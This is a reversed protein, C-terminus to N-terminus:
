NYTIPKYAVYHFTLNCAAYYVFNIFKPSRLAM